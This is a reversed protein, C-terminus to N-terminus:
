QRLEAARDVVWCVGAGDEPLIRAPLGERRMSQSYAVARDQGTTVLVARRADNVLCPDEDRESPSDPPLGAISGDADPGLLILDLRPWWGYHSRERLSEETCLGHIKEPKLPLSGLLQAHSRDALFCEALCWVSAGLADLAQARPGEPEPRLEAARDVVWCV